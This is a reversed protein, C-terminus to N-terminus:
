VRKEPFFKLQIKRVPFQEKAARCMKVFHRGRYNPRGFTVVITERTNKRNPKFQRAARVVADESLFKEASRAGSRLLSEIVDSFASMPIKM